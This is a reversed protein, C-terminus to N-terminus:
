SAVGLVGRVIAVAGSAAAFTLVAPRLWARDLVAALRRSIALGAAMAPFAAAALVAHEWGLLGAFHVAVLSMVAGVAFSAALTSRLEPGSRHQYLLVLPPGGIAAATGCVGSAAGAVLLTSPRIAFVAGAMSVGVAAVIFAGFLASMAAAPVISLLWGGAAVGGVRGLTIWGFGGVDIARRERVAMYATMPLALLLIVAPLAEPRVLAIIPVAVLGLGFGISGQVVSGATVALLVAVVHAVALDNM